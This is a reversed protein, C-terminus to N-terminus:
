RDLSNITDTRNNENQNPDLENEAKLEGSKSQKLEEAPKDLLQQISPKQSQLSKENSTVEVSSEPQVPKIAFKKNSGQSNKSVM